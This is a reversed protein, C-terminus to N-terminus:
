WRGETDEAIMTLAEDLSMFDFESESGWTCAVEWKGNERLYVFEIDCAEKAAEVISDRNPTYCPKISDWEEGEKGKYYEPAPEGDNDGLSSMDGGDILGIAKADTNYESLMIGIDAPHGHHIYVFKIEDTVDIRVGIYARTSM